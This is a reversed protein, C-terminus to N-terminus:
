WLEPPKVGLIPAHNRKFEVGGVLGLTILGRGNGPQHLANIPALAVLGQKAGGAGALGERDGIHDGLCPTRSQHQSVVFGQRGLEAILQPLEERIISNFIEDAVVVIVLRLRIHSDGVGVDGFRSRDVFLDIHQAM